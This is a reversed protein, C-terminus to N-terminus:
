VIRILHYQSGNDSETLVLPSTLPQIGFLFVRGSRAKISIRTAAIEQLSRLLPDSPEGIM